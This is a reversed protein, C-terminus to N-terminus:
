RMIICIGNLITNKDIYKKACELIRRDKSVNLSHRKVAFGSYVMGRSSIVLSDYINFGFYLFISSFSVGVIERMEVYGSKKVVTENSFEYGLSPIKVSRKLVVPYDQEDFQVVVSIPPSLFFDFMSVFYIAIGTVVFFLAIMEMTNKISIKMLMSM